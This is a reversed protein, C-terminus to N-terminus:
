PWRANTEVVDVRLPIEPVYEPAAIWPIVVMRIEDAISRNQYWPAGSIVCNDPIPMVVSTCNLLFAIYYKATSGNITVLYLYTDPPNLAKRIEWLSWVRECKYWAYRETIWGLLGDYYTHNYIYFLNCSAVPALCFDYFCFPFLEDYTIPSPNLTTYTVALAAALILAIPLRRV